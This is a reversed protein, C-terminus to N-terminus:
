RADDDADRRREAEVQELKESLESLRKQERRRRWGMRAGALMVWVGVVVLAGAVAGVLFTGEAPMNIGLVETSSDIRSGDVDTEIGATFLGAIVLLAGVLVLVLGFLVM